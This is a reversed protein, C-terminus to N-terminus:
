NFTSTRYTFQSKKWTVEENPSDHICKIFFSNKFNERFQSKETLFDSFDDLRSSEKPITWKNRLPFPLPIKRKTDFNKNKLVFKTMSTLALRFKPTVYYIISRKHVWLFISMILCASLTEDNPGYFYKNGATRFVQLFLSKIIRDTFEWKCRNLIFGRTRRNKFIGFRFDLCLVTWWVFTFCIVVWSMLM